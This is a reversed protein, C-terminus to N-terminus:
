RISVAKINCISEEKMPENTALKYGLMFNHIQFLEVKILPKNDLVVAGHSIIGAVDFVQLFKFM